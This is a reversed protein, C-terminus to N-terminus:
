APSLRLVLLTLDDHPRLGALFIGIDALIADCIQRPNAGQHQHVTRALREEGFEEGRKDTAEVVGDSFVVLLDGSALAIEGSSYCAAPLMGLVPGGGELREVILNDGHRFLLPPTHGANIYRLIGDDRSVYSWFLSAFRERATRQCLLRNLRESSVEHALASDTWDMSRIAGHIVGMLLAASLGKGAVDGLVISLCGNDCRFVDYFDGGVTAAPLSVAAFEVLDPAPLASEPQPLLDNQVSRALEMQQELYRAEQYRRFSVAMLAMAAILAFAALCGIFLNRRLGGFRISVGEMNIATELFFPGGDPPLVSGARRPPRVHSIAILSRVPGSSDVHTAMEQTSLTQLLTEASPHTTPPVGSHALVTGKADMVRMWIIQRPSERTLENLIPTLGAIDHVESMREAREVAIRKQEALRGAEEEVIRHYVVFYTSITQALLVLGLLVGFAISLRFWLDTRRFTTAM